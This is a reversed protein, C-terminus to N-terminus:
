RHDPRSAAVDGLSCRHSAGITAHWVHIVKPSVRGLMAAEEYAAAAPLTAATM